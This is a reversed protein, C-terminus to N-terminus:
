PARLRFYRHAASVTTSYSHGTPQPSVPQWVTPTPADHLEDAYELICGNLDCPWSVVFDGGVLGYGLTCGCFTMEAQWFGGTVRFRGDASTLPGSADPQGATGSVSFRGDASTSTGGGGDVTHWPVSFDGAHGLLVAGLVLLPIIGTTKM